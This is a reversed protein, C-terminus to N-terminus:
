IKGGKSPPTGRLPSTTSKEIVVITHIEEIRKEGNEV